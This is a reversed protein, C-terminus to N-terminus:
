EMSVCLHGGIVLCVWYAGDNYFLFSVIKFNGCV